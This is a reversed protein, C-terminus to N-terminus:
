RSIATAEGTAPSLTGDATHRFWRTPGNIFLYYIALGASAVIVTVYIILNPLLEPRVTGFLQLFPGILVLDYALFGALQGSANSWKAEICGNVFYTSAGLFIWGYMVSSAPALPWPFINPLALVLAGGVLILVVAFLFFAIRVPRPMPRADRWPIRMGLLFVGLSGVALLGAVLGARALDPRPDRAHEQFLFAAMGALMVTFNIAGAPVARLEDTLGAWLSPAAVAAAISTLFLFGLRTELFDFPWIATAWPLRFGFGITLAVFVVGQIITIARVFQHMTEGREGSQRVELHGSAMAGRPAMRAATGYYQALPTM